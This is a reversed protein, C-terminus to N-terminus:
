LSFFLQTHCRISAVHARRPAALIEMRMHIRGPLEAILEVSHIGAAGM